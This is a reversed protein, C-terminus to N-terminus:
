YDMFLSEKSLEELLAEFSSSPVRIIISNTKENVASSLNESAIFANFTSALKEINKTSKEVNDVQFRFNASKMIMDGSYEDSNDAADNASEAEDYRVSVAPPASALITALPAREQHENSCAIAFLILIAIPIKM